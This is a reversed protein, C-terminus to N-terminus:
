SKRKRTESVIFGLALVILGGMVLGLLGFTILRDVASNDLVPNGNVDVMSPITSRLLYGLAGGVVGAATTWALGFNFNKGASAAAHAGAVGTLALVVFDAM